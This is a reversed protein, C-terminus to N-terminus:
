SKPLRRELLAQAASYPDLQQARVQQLLDEAGQMLRPLAGARTLRLFQQESRRASQRAFEGQAELWARHAGLARLLAEAGEGRTAVATLLPTEWGAAARAGSRLHLLMELHRRTQEFGERDAKNIVLIDGAEMLGAKIAQVEDGLGPVAVIVTSHALAVVDIEEQGVGVTEVLILEFGMADLVACADYTARSLGGSEGRTGMSRIFVGPDVAHRGMRLRDGLLAGGTFPSTPDVALVGVRRGARRAETVMLDVLTSKGAGPPGTIGVIHARGTAPFIRQLVERGRPDGDDLWRIARAGAAVSGALLEAAVDM